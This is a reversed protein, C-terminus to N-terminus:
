FVTANPHRERLAAKEAGTLANLWVEKVSEPLVLHEADTLANLWVEECTAGRRAAWSLFSVFTPWRALVEDRCEKATHSDDPLLRCVVAGNPTYHMERWDDRADTDHLGLQEATNSHSQLDAVKVEFTAPNIFGSALECM